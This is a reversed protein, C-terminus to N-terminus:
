AEDPEVRALGEINDFDTDWSYIESLRRSQMYVANYADAFSINRTVYLELARLCLGKGALQVGPLSLVDRVMIRITDKPVKYTRELTFVTEFVVLASTIVKEGGREVRELLAKARRAKDPDGTTFYRLLVNTDLFRPVAM